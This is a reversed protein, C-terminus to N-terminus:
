LIKHWQVFEVLKGVAEATLDICTFHIAVFYNSTLILHDVTENMTTLSLSSSGLYSLYRNSFQIPPIKFLICSFENMKKWDDTSWRIRMHWDIGSAHFINSFQFINWIMEGNRKRWHINIFESSIHQQLLIPIDTLCPSHQHFLICVM